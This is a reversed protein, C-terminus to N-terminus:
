RGCGIGIDAVDVNQVLMTADSGDANMIKLEHGVPAKNKGTAPRGLWLSVVRGDPLVCPSNDNSFRWAGAVKEPNTVEVASEGARLQWIQEARGNWSGEFVIRGDAGYAAHHNASQRGPGLAPTVVKRFGTGDTAVECISMGPAEGSDKGCDFVVHTGDASLAPQQNYLERSDQTLLAPTTWVDGTRRTAFLDITHPGTNDPFVILDNKSGIASYAAPHLPAGDVIIPQGSCLDRSVVALCMEDGCGFRSTQLLLWEGGASINVFGDHGPSLRDLEHSLDDAAAGPRAEIRYSRKNALRFVVHGTSKAAVTAGCTAGDVKVWKASVSSQVAGVGGVLDETGLQARCGFLAFGAAIWAGLIRTTVSVTRVLM